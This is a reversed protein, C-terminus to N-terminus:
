VSIGIDLGSLKWVAEQIRLWRGNMWLAAPPRALIGRLGGWEYMASLFAWPDCGDPRAALWDPPISPLYGGVVNRGTEQVGSLVFGRTNSQKGQLGAPALVLPARHLPAEEQTLPFTAGYERMAKEEQEAYLSPRSSIVRLEATYPVLAYALQPMCAQPDYLTVPMRHGSSATRLLHVATIAMMEQGLLCGRFPRIGSAPPVALGAPLLMRSAGRGAQERITEWDLRGHRDPRATLLLYSGEGVLVRQAEVSARRRRFWRRPLPRGIELAVVM